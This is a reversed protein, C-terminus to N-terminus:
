GEGSELPFPPSHPLLLLPGRLHLFVVIGGVVLRQPLTREDLYWFVLAEIMDFGRHSKLWTWSM